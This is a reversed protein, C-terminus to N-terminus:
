YGHTTPLNSGFRISYGTQEEGEIDPLDAEVTGKQIQKLWEVSDNYEDRVSAPINRPNIISHLKKIVMNCVCEIVLQNRNDGQTWANDSPYVGTVTLEGLYKTTKVRDFYSDNTPLIGSEYASASANRKYVEHSYFLLDNEVYAKDSDYYDPYAIYYTGEQAIVDFFTSNTPLTGSSYGSTTANKKYVTGNYSVLTNNTYVQASWADATFNIRDGYTYETSLNFLIFDKFIRDIKYRSRLYEKVRTIAKAEAKQRVETDGSIERSVELIQNLQSESISDLYDELLIFAM